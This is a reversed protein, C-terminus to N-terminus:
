SDSLDSYPDFAYDHNPDEIDEETINETIGEELQLEIDLDKAESLMKETTNDIADMKSNIEDDMEQSFDEDREKWDAASSSLGELLSGEVENNQNEFADEISVEDDEEDLPEPANLLGEVKTLDVVRADSVSTLINSDVAQLNINTVEEKNVHEELIEFASRRVTDAEPRKKNEVNLSKTFDTESIISRITERLQDLEEMDNFHFKSKDGGVIEKIDGIAGVENKTAMDELEYEPPLDDLTKLNFVELFETTTGYVVPKGLDDSRGAVKVLRKDMLGRVIHSSDVGRIKEIENKSIPQKYAIIALVELATPSLVLSTVKCIEQVFKSYTAKT